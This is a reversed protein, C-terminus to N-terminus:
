ARSVTSYEHARYIAEGEIAQVFGRVLAAGEDRMREIVNVVVQDWPIHLFISRAASNKDTDFDGIMGRRILRGHKSGQIAADGPLVHVRRNRPMHDANLDVGRSM